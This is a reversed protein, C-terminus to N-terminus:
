EATDSAEPYEPRYEGRQEWGRDIGYKAIAEERTIKNAKVIPGRSIDSIGSVEEIDREIQERYEDPTQSPGDEYEKIHQKIRDEMDAILNVVKEMNVLDIGSISPLDCLVDGDHFDQWGSNTLVEATGDDHYRTLRFVWEDRDFLSGSHFRYKM